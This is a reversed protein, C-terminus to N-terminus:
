KSSPLGRKLRERGPRHGPNRLGHSLWGWLAAASNLAVVGSVEARAKALVAGPDIVVLLRHPHTQLYRHAFVPLLPSFGPKTSTEWVRAM